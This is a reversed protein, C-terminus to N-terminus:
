WYKYDKLKGELVEVGWGGDELVEVYNKLKDELLEVGWDEDELVKLGEGWKGIIRIRM